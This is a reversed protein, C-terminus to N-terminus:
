LSILAPFRRLDYGEDDQRSLTGRCLSCCTRMCYILAGSDLVQPKLQSQSCQGFTIPRAADLNV